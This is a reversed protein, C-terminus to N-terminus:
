RRSRPATPPRPSRRRRGGDPRQDDPSRPVRRRATAPGWHALGATFSRTHRRARPRPAPTVVEPLGGWRPAQEYLWLAECLEDATVDVDLERLREILGTLADTV